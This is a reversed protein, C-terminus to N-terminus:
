PKEWLFHLESHNPVRNNINSFSNPSDTWCQTSKATYPTGLATIYGVTHSRSDISGPEIDPSWMVGEIYNVSQFIVKIALAFISVVM